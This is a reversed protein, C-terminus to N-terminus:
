KISVKWLCQCLIFIMEFGVPLSTNRRNNHPRAAAASQFIHAAIAFVLFIEGVLWSLTNGFM